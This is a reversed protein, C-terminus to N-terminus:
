CQILNLALRLHFIVQNIHRAMLHLFLVAAHDQVFQDQNAIFLLTLKSIHKAM